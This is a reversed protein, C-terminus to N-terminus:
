TRFSAAVVIEHRTTPKWRECHHAEGGLGSNHVVVFRGTQAEVDRLLRLLGCAGRRVAHQGAFITRLGEGLQNPLVRHHLRKGIRDLTSPDSM